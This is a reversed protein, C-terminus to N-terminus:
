YSKTLMEFIMFARRMLFKHGCMHELNWIHAGTHSYPAFSLFFLFFFLCSDLLFVSRWQAAVVGHM